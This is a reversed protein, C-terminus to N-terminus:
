VMLHNKIFITEDGGDKLHLVQFTFDIENIEKIKDNIMSDIENISRQTKYRSVLDGDSWLLLDRTQLEVWEPPVEIYDAKHQYLNVDYKIFDDILYEVHNIPAIIRFSLILVGNNYIKIMPYLAIVRDGLGIYCANLYGRIYSFMNLYQPSFLNLESIRM